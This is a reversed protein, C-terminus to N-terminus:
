LLVAARNTERDDFVPREEEASVFTQPPTLRRGHRHQGIERNELRRRGLGRDDVSERDRGARRGRRAQGPSRLQSGGGAGRRQASRQGGFLACLIQKALVAADKREGAIRLGERQAEIVAGAIVILEEQAVVVGVAIFAILARAR